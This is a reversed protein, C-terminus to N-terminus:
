DMACALVAGASSSSAGVGMGFCISLGASGGRGGGLSAEGALVSGGAEDTPLELTRLVADDPDSPLTSAFRRDDRAADIDWVVSADAPVVDDSALETVSILASSTASSSRRSSVALVSSMKEIFGFTRWVEHEALRFV